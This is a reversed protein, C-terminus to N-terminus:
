SLVVSTREKGRGEGRSGSGGQLVRVPLNFAGISSTMADISDIAVHGAQLGALDPADLLEIAAFDGKVPNEGMLQGPVEALNGPLGVALDADEDAAPSVNVEDDHPIV